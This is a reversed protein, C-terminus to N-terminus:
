LAPFFWCLPRLGNKLKDIRSCMGKLISKQSPSADHGKSCLAGQFYTDLRCQPAPHAPNSRTVIKIDPTDVSPLGPLSRLSQFLNALSQGAMASRVCLSSEKESAFAQECRETMTTPIKMKSIISLNDDDEFLRKFCKMSSFYDSQGETSAWSGKTPAGGMHHGLEHCAVLALGDLTITKHRALGGFMKIFWTGREQQAYANVTGSSWNKVVKLKAGREKIVPSYITEIKTLLSMFETKTMTNSSKFNVPIFLDNEEVIGQTGDESCANAASLTLLSLLLIPLFLRM